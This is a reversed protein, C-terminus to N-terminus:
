ENVKLWVGMTHGVFEPAYACQITAIDALYLGARDIRFTQELTYTGKPLHDIFYLTSADKVSRYLGIGGEHRYGSATNVPEICAARNDKVQVFDMSRDARITLKSLVRDGVHLTTNDMIPVWSMQGNVTREVMWTREISLPQKLSQGYPTTTRGTYTSTVKDIDELYQAYVAGWALGSQSKEINAERPLRKLENTTYTRKMFDLGLTSPVTSTIAIGDLKLTTNQRTELLNTGTMLLAYVADITNPPNGWHQTQKQILLWQKMEEIYLSDEGTMTLAEITAVQTPIRQNRWGFTTPPNDFFRGMQPTYTTQQKLSELFMDAEQQKGFYKLIIAAKAKGYPTLYHLQGALHKVMYDAAKQIRKELMKGNLTQISLYHLALESPRVERKEKEQKLLQEYEEILKQDLFNAAREMMRQSEIGQKDGTMHYTRVMLELVYTTVYRNSAMDKHWSWGGDSKQLTGLKQLYGEIRQQTQEQNFLLALQRKQTAEDTAETVWPTEDLLMTKLEENKQLNSWLTEGNNGEAQWNDFVAKIQPTSHVIHSAVCHSFWAAAWSFADENTPTAVAPLAQIALWAPNGTMEVTLRHNTATSSHRNFLHDLEETVKDTGNVMLPQSETVWIKDTLVPLYRQEGDSYKGGDAVIRCVPLPVDTNKVTFAFTVTSTKEAETSFKVKRTLIVRETVPDILEMRANGKIRKKSLNSLTASVTTEDGVRVFRPLNPQVMFERQATAYDELTGYEMQRTHALARFRWRTLNDPLTFSVKVRGTQDTRLYPKFFATETFNERMRMEKPLVEPITKENKQTGYSIEEELTTQALDLGAIRGALRTDIGTVAFSEYNITEKKTNKRFLPLNFNYYREGVDDYRWQNPIEKTLLDFNIHTSFYRNGLNNWRLPANPRFFYVDFGWPRQEGLQELSTDYMSALLEADAPKGDPHNVTLTWEEQTSPTLRDRFTEWKLELSKTPAKRKLVKSHSLTKGKKVYMVSVSMGKGYEPLYDFTFTRVTDSMYFRRSDIRKDESFIDMLIYADKERTGFQLRLPHDASVEDSLCYFWDTTGQPVKTEEETHLVFKDICIVSDRKGTLATSAKIKYFGSPLKDLHDFQLPQNSTTTGKHVLELEKETKEETRYIRFDVETEVPEGSLNTVRFTVPHSQGKLWHNSAQRLDIVLPTSSLALSTQAEHSEGAPSTVTGTIEYRYRWWCLNERIGEVEDLLVDIRFRGDSDTTTKGDTMNYDDWRDRWGHMWGQYDKRVRYSVDSDAVPVGSYTVARGTLTVMDGISYTMTVKDFAVEFTPLKYEEVQIWISTETQSEKNSSEISYMGNLGGTPLVFETDFSGFENSKVMKTGVTQRKPDKLTVEFVKEKAAYVSDNPEQWYSIGKIYITQGPRFHTRDSMLRIILQKQENRQGWTSIYNRQIYPMTNDTATSVHILNGEHNSAITVCGDKGIPKSEITVIKKKNRDYRATHLTAGKIPHGSQGDLVVYETLGGPLSHAVLKYPSVYFWDLNSGKGNAITEILYVGSEKPLPLNVLTDQEKYNPAPKLTYKQESYFTSFKKLEETNGNYAQLTDLPCEVRRLWIACNTLNRHSLRLTATDGPYYYTHSSTQMFLYPQQIEKVMNSLQNIAGYKPYNAIGEHLIDLAETNKGQGRLITAIDYCLSGGLDSTCFEEKLNYFLRLYEKENRDYKPIINLRNQEMSLWGDSKREKELLHLMQQFTRMVFTPCDYASAATLTDLRFQDYDLTFEKWSTQKFSGNLHSQLDRIGFVARRGILHMLDHQYMDSWRGTYIIPIYNLTSYGQLEELRSISAAFHDFARQHYMLRTWQSMDEPLPSIINNDYRGQASHTYISGLLSHLIAADSVPTIPDAAWQELTAIDVYMSDMSLNKRHGMAVLFARMMLTSNQENQAQRFVEKTAAIVEQSRGEQELQNISKEQQEHHQAPLSLIGVILTLLLSSIRKKM